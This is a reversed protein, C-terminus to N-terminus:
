AWRAWPTPTPCRARSRRDCRRALPMSRTASSTSSRTKGPPGSADCGPRPPPSAFMASTAAVFGVPEQGASRLRWYDQVSLDTVVPWSAGTSGPLRVATGTVVYEITGRGLDHDSRHLRVGVVADANVQLAEECLRDVARRRATRWAQTLMDLECVVATHWRLDPGAVGIARHVQQRLRGAPHQLLGHRQRRLGTGGPGPAAPVSLGHPHRQSGHGSRDAAAGDASAARVGQGVPRQHVDLGRRGPGAPAARRGAPHWRERNAEAVRGTGTRTMETTSSGWGEAGEIRPQRGHAPARARSAGM